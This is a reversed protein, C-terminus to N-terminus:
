QFNKIKLIHFCIIGYLQNYNKLYLPSLAPHEPTGSALKDQVWISDIDFFHEAFNQFSINSDSLNNEKALLLECFQIAAKRTKCGISKEPAFTGDSNYIQYYYISKGSKLSRKYIFFYNQIFISRIFLIKPSPLM